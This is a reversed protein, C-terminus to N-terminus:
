VVSKRDGLRDMLLRMRSLGPEAGFRKLSHVYSLAEAYTM